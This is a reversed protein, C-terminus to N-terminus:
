LSKSQTEILVYNPKLKRCVGERVFAVSIFFDSASPLSLLKGVAHEHDHNPVLGQTLASVKAM